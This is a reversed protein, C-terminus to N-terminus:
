TTSDLLELVNELRLDYSLNTNFMGEQFEWKNERSVFRGPKGNLECIYEQVHGFITQMENILYGGKGDEFLDVAMANFNYTECLERVFNLLKEPPVSYDIGKTGSAKDGQKIKKHGFYSNGIRIVRWEFDHPIYEQLIVFDKQIENYITKYTELRNKIRSPNKIIKKIRGWYGGMKLNPGSRQHLGGKSFAKNVYAVATEINKLVRVGKGSAGIGFKGVIPFPSNKLFELAEDQYYFVNTEPHPLDQSALWFSLYRKNEHISIEDYNPYVVKGLVNNLIYIREDYLKKYHTERGPPCALFCTYDQERIKDLWNSRTLDLVQYSNNNKKCASVWHLHAEDSENKLIAFNYDM